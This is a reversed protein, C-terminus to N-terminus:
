VVPISCEIVLAVADAHFRAGQCAVCRTAYSVSSQACRGYHPDPNPADEGRRKGGLCLLRSLSLNLSNAHEPHSHRGAAHGGPVVVEEAGVGQDVALGCDHDAQVNARSKWQSSRLPM